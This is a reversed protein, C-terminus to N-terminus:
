ALFVRGYGNIRNQYIQRNYKSNIALLVDNSFTGEPASIRNERTLIDQKVPYALLDAVQLGAINASKPKLKIEQSTLPKQFFTAERWLTGRALLEKYAQKLHTDERGGRSEALVDGEANYFNLFGCYRELLAALCFHYPHYAADGYREIHTKKDITVGILKFNQQALFSLLDNDFFKAKDPDKLKGFPGRRNVLDRRHLIIPEDPSHPFHDQKLKEFDPHFSARYSESEIFLGLLCLYRKAPDDLSGYTHDGSEDIYLRYRKM